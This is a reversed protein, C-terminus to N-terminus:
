VYRYPLNYKEFVLRAYEGSQFIQAKEDGNWLQTMFAQAQNWEIGTLPRLGASVRVNNTWIRNTNTASVGPYASGKTQVGKRATGGIAIQALNRQQATNNWGPGKSRENAVLEAWTRLGSTDQVMARNPEFNNPYGPYQKVEQIPEYGQPPPSTVPPQAAVPPTPNTQGGGVPQAIPQTSIPQTRIPPLGQETTMPPTTPTGEAPIRIPQTRADPIKTDTRPPVAPEPPVSQSVSQPLAGPLQRELAIIQEPQYSDISEPADGSDATGGSRSRIYLVGGVGVVVIGVLAVPPMKKLTAIGKGIEDAM